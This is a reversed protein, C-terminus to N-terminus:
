EPRQIKNEDDKCQCPEIIQEGKQLYGGYLQGDDVVLWGDMVFPIASNVAIWEGNYRRAIHVHTGTSVGGECSPHGIRDGASLSTGLPVRDRSEIHLYFITWGTEEHGDGDLDQVVAGHDSRVVMGDAMAVVWEDNTICGFEEKPPAFDVASWASGGDWGGHPGGTFTWRVGPEFPLQLAPQSLGAPVLPEVSWDFPYGYLQQYTQIFGEPSVVQRWALEPYLGAFMLHLAATGANIRPSAPILRADTSTFGGLGNVRWLYFGQNLTNAAWALQYYLGARWDDRIGIPYEFETIEAQPRTLWGSQYELVALLLRPNVSYNRAVLIVVETGTLMEGNVEQSYSALWGGQKQIFAALDVKANYPGNVLESDPILKTDPASDALIPPPIKLVQGVSLVNPDSLGNETMLTDVSVGYRRALGGLTDNARVTYTVASDRLPPLSREPDPTPTPVMEGPERLVPLFSFDAYPGETPRSFFDASDGDPPLLPNNDGLTTRPFSCALVALLMLIAALAARRLPHTQASIPLLRM